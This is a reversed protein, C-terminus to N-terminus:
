RRGSDENLLRQRRSLLIESQRGQPKDQRPLGREATEYYRDKNNAPRVRNLILGSIHAGAARLTDTTQELQAQRLKTSDIVIVTSDVGQAILAADSVSSVPATDVIVVDYSKKAEALLERMQRSDLIESPNPPIAGATLVDMNTHAFRQAAESLPLGNVVVTTVGITPELGLYTAIRPRRLDADILLVRQTGEALTLALNLSTVTKGEEPISSTVAITRLERTVSTFRLAARIQRYKETASGRPLRITVPRQDSSRPTREATGLLPQDTLSKLTAVSRIRTDFVVTIFLYLLSFGGGVFAGLVANKAKNPSSQFAAPEAPQTVRAVVTPEGATDRPAVEAVVNLLSQAVANAARSSLDRDTTQVTIELIVTNQPTTVNVSRRLEQETLEGDLKKVAGDLVASTTALEAYSLMQNQTYTLGQNIDSGSSGDRLSFFMSAGSQYVPAVMASLGFAAVGALFAAILVVFWRKKLALLMRASRNTALGSKNM